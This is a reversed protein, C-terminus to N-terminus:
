ERIKCRKQLLNVRFVQFFVMHKIPRITDGETCPVAVRKELVYPSINKKDPKTRNIPSPGISILLHTNEEAYLPDRFSEDLDSPSLKRVEQNVQTEYSSIDHAFPSAKSARAM